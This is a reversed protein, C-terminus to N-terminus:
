AERKKSVLVIFAILSLIGVMGVGFPNTNDGTQVTTDASKAVVLEVKFLAASAILQSKDDPATYGSPVEIVHITYTTGITLNSVIPTLGDKDTKVTAIINGAGDKIEVTANAIPEKTNKDTIVAQLSGTDPTTKAVTLDVTTLEGDKITIDQDGPATYGDPVTSTHVTYTNNITLGSIVPTKGDKDTKGTAIVKGTSDKIEVTADKIPDKTNKDIITAQLSGKNTEDTSTKVELTVTTMPTENEIRITKDAPPTYGHPVSNTHVKYDELIPLDKIEPTQGNEDTKGEYVVDGKQNTITVYADKIKDGTNEDVITAQLSGTKKVVKLTKETPKTNDKIEVTEDNPM